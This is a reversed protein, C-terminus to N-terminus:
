RAFFCGGYCAHLVWSLAPWQMTEHWMLSPQGGFLAHELRQIFPDHLVGMDITMIGLQMYFATALLLPYATLFDVFGSRPARALLLVLVLALLNALLLLPWSDVRGIRTLVVASNFLIYGLFLRDVSMLGRRAASHRANLGAVM